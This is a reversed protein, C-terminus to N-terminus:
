KEYVLFWIDANAQLHLNGYLYHRCHSPYKGPILWLSKWLCLLLLPWLCLPEKSVCMLGTEYASLLLSVVVVMKVRLNWGPSGSLLSLLVWLDAQHRVTTWCCPQHGTSHIVLTETIMLVRLLCAAEGYDSCHARKHLVASESGWQSTRFGPSREYSEGARLVCSWSNGTAAM